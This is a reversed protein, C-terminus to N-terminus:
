IFKLVAKNQLFDDKKINLKIKSKTPM